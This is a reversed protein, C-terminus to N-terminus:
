LPATGTRSAGQYRGTAIGIRDHSKALQCALVWQVLEFELKM